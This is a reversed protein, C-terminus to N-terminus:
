LSEMFHKLQVYSIRHTLENDVAFRTRVIAGDSDFSLDEIRNCTEGNFFIKLFDEQANIIVDEIIGCSSQLLKLTDLTM